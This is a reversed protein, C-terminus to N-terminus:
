KDKQKSGHSSGFWFQLIMPMAATIVGFVMADLNIQGTAQFYALTFYGVIFVISIVIHPRMDTKALGRADKRDDIVLSELQIDLKKLEIKFDNEVQKLKMLADPNGSLIVESVAQESSEVGLAKAAMNVAMGAMPGGFATAITPAITALTKVWDM